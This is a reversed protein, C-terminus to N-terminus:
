SCKLNYLRGYNQAMEIKNKAKLRTKIIADSTRKWEGTVSQDYGSLGLAHLSVGYLALM